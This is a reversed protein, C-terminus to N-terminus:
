LTQAQVLSHEAGALGAERRGVAVELPPHSAGLGKDVQAARSRRGGGSDGTFDGVGSLKEYKLLCPM